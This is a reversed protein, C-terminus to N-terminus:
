RGARRHFVLNDCFEVQSSSCGMRCGSREAGKRYLVPYSAGAVKLQLDVIEAFLNMIREHCPRIM